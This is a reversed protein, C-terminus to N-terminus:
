KLKGSKNNFKIFKPCCFYYFTPNLEGKWQISLEFSFDTFHPILTKNYIYPCINKV